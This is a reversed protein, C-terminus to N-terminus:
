SIKTHTACRRVTVHSVAWLASDQSVAANSLSRAGFTPHSSVYQVHTGFDPSHLELGDVKVVGNYQVRLALSAGPQVKDFMMRRSGDIAQFDDETLVPVSAVDIDLSGNGFFKAPKLPMWKCIKNKSAVQFRIPHEADKQKNAQVTCSVWIAQAGWFSHYTLM